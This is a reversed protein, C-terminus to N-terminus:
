WFLVFFYYYCKNAFYEDPAICSRAYFFFLIRETWDLKTDKKEIYTNRSNEIPIINTAIEPIQVATDKVHYAGRVAEREVHHDQDASMFFLLFIFAVM